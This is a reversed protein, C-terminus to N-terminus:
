LAGMGRKEPVGLHRVILTVDKIATFVILLRQLLVLRVVLLTHSLTTLIWVITYNLFNCNALLFITINAGGLGIVLFAIAVITAM